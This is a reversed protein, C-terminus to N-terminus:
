KMMGASLEILSPITKKRELGDAIEAVLKEKLSLYRDKPLVNNGICYRKSYQSFSFMVEDCNRCKYSYYADRSEIAYTSEFCRSAKYAETTNICFQLGAGFCCGFLYKGEMVMQCFAAYECNFVEHSRLVHFADACNDSEEVDAYNGLIKSGAYLFHEKAAELLSDIDKIEDAELPKALARDAEDFSVFRAGRCYPSAYYAKKGSQSAAEHLPDIYRGLFAGFGGLEGVERGLMVKATSKWARGLAESIKAPTQIAM